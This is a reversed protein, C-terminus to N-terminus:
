NYGNNAKRKKIRENIKYRNLKESEILNDNNIFHYIRQFLELCESLYEKEMEKNQNEDLYDLCRKVFIIAVDFRRGQVLFIIHNVYTVFQYEPINRKFYRQPITKTIREIFYDINLNISSWDFTLFEDLHNGELDTFEEYFGVPVNFNPGYLKKSYINIQTVVRCYDDKDVQFEFKGFEYILDIKNNGELFDIGIKKDSEISLDIIGNVSTLAKEKLSYKKAFEILKNKLFM